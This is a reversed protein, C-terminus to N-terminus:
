RISVENILTDFDFDGIAALGMGTENLLQRIADDVDEKQLNRLRRLENEIFFDCDMVSCKGINRLHETSNELSLLMATEMVKKEREMEEEYIGDDKAKQLVETIIKGVEVAKRKDCVAMFGVTGRNRYFSSFGGMNYSLGRKVRIEKIMRSEMGSMGIIRVAMETPIRLESRYASSRFGISLVASAGSGHNYYIGPTNNVIEIQAAKKEDKWDAFRDEIESVVEKYDIDGVVALIANEPVYAHSLIEKIQEQTAHEINEMNGMIIKGTGINGWIAQSTREKIQQFSSYFGTAEQLVVSKENEFDEESFNRNKKAIEALCDLCSNLTRKLGTFYFCTYEKTTAANYITGEAGVKKMMEEFETGQINQPNILLHELLHSLGNNEDTEFTSGQRVWLGCSITRAAPIKHLIVKMGNELYANLVDYM